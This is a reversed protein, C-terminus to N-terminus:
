QISWPRHPLWAHVREFFTLPRARFEFVERNAVNTRTVIWSTSPKPPYFHRHAILLGVIAALALAPLAYRLKKKMATPDFREFIM